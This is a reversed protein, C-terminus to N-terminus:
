SLFILLRSLCVIVNTDTCPLSTHNNSVMQKDYAQHNLNKEYGTAVVTDVGSAAPAVRCPLLNSNFVKPKGRTM